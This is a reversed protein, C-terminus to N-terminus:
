GDEDDDEPPDVTRDENEGDYDQVANETVYPVVPEDEVPGYFKPRAM